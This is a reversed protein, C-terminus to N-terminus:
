FANQALGVERFGDLTLPADVFAGVLTPGFLRRGDAAEGDARDRQRGEFGDLCIGEGVKLGLVVRRVAAGAAGTRRATLSAAWAWPAEEPMGRKARVKYGTAAVGAVLVARTALTLLTAWVVLAVSMAGRCIEASFFSRGSDRESWGRNGGRGVDAGAERRGGFRRRVTWEGGDTSYELRAWSMRALLVCSVKASLRRPKPWSSRATM